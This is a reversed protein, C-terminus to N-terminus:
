RITDNELSTLVSALLEPNAPIRIRVANRGLGHLGGTVAVGQGALMSRLDADPAPHILTFIPVEPDTAAVTFGRINALIESKVSRTM